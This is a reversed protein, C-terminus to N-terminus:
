LRREISMETLMLLLWWYKSITKTQNRGSITNLQTKIAANFVHVTKWGNRKKVSHGVDFCYEKQVHMLLRLTYVCEDWIYYYYLLMAVLMWLIPLTFLFPCFCVCIMGILATSLNLMEILTICSVAFWVSEIVIFIFDFLGIEM